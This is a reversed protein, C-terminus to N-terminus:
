QAFLLQRNLCLLWQLRDVERLLDLLSGFLLLMLNLGRRVELALGSSHFFICRSLAAQHFSSLRKILEARWAGAVGKAAGQLGERAEEPFGAPFDKRM